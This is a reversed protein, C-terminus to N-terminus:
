DWLGSRVSMALILVDGDDRLRVCIDVTVPLPLGYDYHIFVHMEIQFLQRSLGELLKVLVVSASNVLFYIRRDEM